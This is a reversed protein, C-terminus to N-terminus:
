ARHAKCHEGENEGRARRRYGVRIESHDSVDGVAAVVEVEGDLEGIADTLRDREIVGRDGDRKTALFVDEAVAVGRIVSSGIGADTDRESSRATVNEGGSKSSVFQRILEGHADPLPPTASPAGDTSIAAPEIRTGPPPVHAASSSSVRVRYATGGYSSRPSSNNV